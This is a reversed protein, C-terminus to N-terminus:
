INRTVEFVGQIQNGPDAIVPFKYSEFYTYTSNPYFDLIDGNPLFVSFHLNDNERFQITHNMFSGQLTLWSSNPLFTVPVKFLAKRSTPNNSEVPSLWTNGKESYLTVYVFPYNQLTGGYGGRINATPVILNLLRIKQTIPNQILETGNYVLPRANDYSFEIIQYVTGPPLIVNLSQDITAIRTVGNYATIRRWKFNSPLPDPFFVFKNVYINNLSSALAGLEISTPTPNPVLTVDEYNGGALATPFQKRIYYPTLAPYLASMPPDVTAIQASNDYATVLRFDSGINLVSGAYFNIITSSVVSLAIQTLTSGGSLLDTEYPFGLLVPDAATQYTSKPSGGVQVVFDGPKPYTIRDRFTSDIDIYRTSM